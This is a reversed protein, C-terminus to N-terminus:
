RTSSELKTLETFLSFYAAASFKEVQETPPTKIDWDPNIKSPSQKDWGHLPAATLGAQFKNVAAYDAKGNTQTRGIIWGMASPSRIHTARPPLDGLWGPATVYLLQESTGTTRKGTSEFVDTWMDVMPLLYYRGGSDPVSILLPEESVDFWILSYLTDANPRVLDTFTANPFHLCTQM